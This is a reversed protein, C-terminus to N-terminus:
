RWRPQEALLVRSWLGGFLLVRDRLLSQNDWNVNGPCFSRLKLPKKIKNLSTFGQELIRVRSGGGAEGLWVYVCM